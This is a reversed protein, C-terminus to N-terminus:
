HHKIYFFYDDNFSTFGACALVFNWSLDNLSATAEDLHYFATSPHLVPFALRTIKGNADAEIRLSAREGFFKQGSYTIVASTTVNAKHWKFSPKGLLLALPTKCAQWLASRLGFHIALVEDGLAKYPMVGNTTGRHPVVCRRFCLEMWLGPALLATKEIKIGMKTAM